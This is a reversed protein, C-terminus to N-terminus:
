SVENIIKIFNDAHIDWSLEKAKQLINEGYRRSNNELQMFEVAAIVDNMKSQDIAIGHKNPTFIDWAGTNKPYIIPTGYSAAELAGMMFGGSKPPAIFCKAEKYLLSLEVEDPNKIVRIRDVLNRERIEKIFSNYDNLNPWHGAM